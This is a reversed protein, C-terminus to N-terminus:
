REGLNLARASRSDLEHACAHQSDVFITVLPEAVSTVLCPSSPASLALRGAFRLLTLEATDLFASHSM